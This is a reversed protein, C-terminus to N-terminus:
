YPIKNEALLGIIAIIISVHIWLKTDGPERAYFIESKISGSLLFAIGIFDIISIHSWLKSASCAATFVRIIVIRRHLRQKFM